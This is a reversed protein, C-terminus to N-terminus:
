PESLRTPGPGSPMAGYMFISSAAARTRNTATIAALADFARMPRSAPFSRNPAAHTAMTMSNTAKLM